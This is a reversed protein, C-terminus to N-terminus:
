REWLKIAFKKIYWLIDETNPNKWDALDWKNPFEEFNEIWYGTNMVGEIRSIIDFMAANGAQEEFPKLQGHKPDYKSVYIDEKDNDPWFYVAKGSLVSWDTKETGRAGGQWTTVTFHEGLYQHAFAATKAGEVVMVPLERDILHLNYVPRLSDFGQWRWAKSNGNTFFGYPLVQKSGDAMEFRCDYGWVKGNRLRYVWRKAPTGLHPHIFSPNWEPDIQRWLAPAPTERKVAVPSLTVEQYVRKKAEKFPVNDIKMVFDIADGSEGCAFCKFLNKNETVKLSGKTDNHFPCLGVMHPREPRLTLYRSVVSVISVDSVPM